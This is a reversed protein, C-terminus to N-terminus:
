VPIYPNSFIQIKAYKVCPYIPILVEIFFYSTDCFKFFTPLISRWAKTIDDKKFNGYPHYVKGKWKTFLTWIRLKKQDTNERMRVSCPSLNKIRRQFLIVRLLWESNLLVVNTLKIWGLDKSSINCLQRFTLAYLIFMMVAFDVLHHLIIQFNVHKWDAVKLKDFFDIKWIVEKIVSFHM